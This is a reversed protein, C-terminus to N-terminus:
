LSLILSHTLRRKLFNGEFKIFVLLPLRVDVEAPSKVFDSPINSSAKNPKFKLYPTPPKGDKVVIIRVSLLEM